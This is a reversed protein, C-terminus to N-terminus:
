SVRNSASKAWQWPVANTKPEQSFRNSQDPTHPIRPELWIRKPRHLDPRHDCCYPIPETRYRSSSLAIECHTNKYPVLKQIRCSFSHPSAYLANTRIRKFSAFWRNYCIRQNYTEETFVALNVALHTNKPHSRFLTAMEIVGYVHAERHVRRHQYFILLEHSRQHSLPSPYTGSLKVTETRAATKEFDIM